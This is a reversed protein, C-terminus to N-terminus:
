QIALDFDVDGHYTGAPWDPHTALNFIITCTAIGSQTWGSILTKPLSSAMAGDLCIAGVAGATADTMVANWSLAADPVPSGSEDFVASRQIELHITKGPASRAWAAVAVPVTRVMDGPNEVEFVLDAHAPKLHTESKIEIVLPGGNEGSSWVSIAM